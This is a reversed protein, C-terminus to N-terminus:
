DSYVFNNKMSEGQEVNASPGVPVGGLKNQSHLGGENFETLQNNPM